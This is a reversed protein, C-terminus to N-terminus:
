SQHRPANDAILQLAGKLDAGNGSKIREWSTEAATYGVKV